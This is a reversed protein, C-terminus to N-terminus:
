PNLFFYLQFSFHISILLNYIYLYTFLFGFSKEGLHIISSCIVQKSFGKVSKPAHCITTISHRKRNLLAFMVYRATKWGSLFQTSKRCMTTLSKKEAINSFKAKQAGLHGNKPPHCPPLDNSPSGSQIKLDSALNELIMCCNGLSSAEFVKSSSNRDSNQLSSFDSPRLIQHWRSTRYSNPGTFNCIVM